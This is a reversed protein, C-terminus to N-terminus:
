NTKNTGDTFLIMNANYEFLLSEFDTNYLKMHEDMFENIELGIGDVTISSGVPIIDDTFDLGLDLIKVGFMDQINLSGQVGKIDKDTNNKVDFTFSVFPSYRGADYNVDYNEKDLVLIAVDNEQVVSNTEYTDVKYQLRINKSEFDASTKNATKLENTLDTVQEELDSVQSKLDSIETNYTSADASTCGVFLVMSLIILISLAKAKMIIEGKTM